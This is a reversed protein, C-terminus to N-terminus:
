NLDLSPNGTWLIKSSKVKSLKLNTSYAQLCLMCPFDYIKLIGHLTSDIAKPLDQNHHLSFVYCLGPLSALFRCCCEL